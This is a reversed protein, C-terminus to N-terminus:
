GTGTVDSTGEIRGYIARLCLVSGQRSAARHSPDQAYVEMCGADSREEHVMTSIRPLLLDLGCSARRPHIRFGAPTALHNRWLEIAM